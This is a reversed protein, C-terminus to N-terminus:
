KSLWERIEDIEPHDALAELAEEKTLLYGTDLEDGSWQSWEHWLLYEQDDERVKELRAHEGMGGFTFDTSNPGKEQYDLNYTDLVEFEYEVMDDDLCVYTWNSNKAYGYAKFSPVDNLNFFCKENFDFALCGAGIEFIEGVGYARKGEGGVLDNLLNELDYESLDKASGPIELEAAKSGPIENWVMFPFEFTSVAEVVETPETIVYGYYKGTELHKEGKEWFLIKEM